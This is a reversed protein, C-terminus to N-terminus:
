IKELQFEIDIKDENILTIGLVKNASVLYQKRIRIKTQDSNLYFDINSSDTQDPKTVQNLGNVKVFTSGNAFRYGSLITPEIEQYTATTTVINTGYYIGRDKYYITNSQGVPLVDNDVLANGNKMDMTYNVYQSGTDTFRLHDGDFVSESYATIYKRLNGKYGELTTQTM